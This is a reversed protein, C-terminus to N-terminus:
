TKVEENPVKQWAVKHFSNCNLQVRASKEVFGSSLAPTHIEMLIVLSPFSVVTQLRLVSM